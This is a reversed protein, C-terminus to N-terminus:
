PRVHFRHTPGLGHGEDGGHGEQGHKQAGIKALYPTTAPRPQSATVM